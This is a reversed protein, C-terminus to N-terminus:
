DAVKVSGLVQAARQKFQAEPTDLAEYYFCVLRKTNVVVFGIFHRYTDPQFGTYSAVMGSGQSQIKPASLEIPVSRVQRHETKLRTALYEDLREAIEARTVPQVLQLVSVSLYETNATGAYQRLGEDTVPQEGWKGPLRVAYDTTEVSTVNDSMDAACAISLCFVFALITRM